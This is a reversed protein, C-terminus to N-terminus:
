PPPQEITGSGLERIVYSGDQQREARLEFFRAGVTTRADIDGSSANRGFVAANPFVYFDSAALSVTCREGPSVFMRVHCNGISRTQDAAVRLVVHHGDNVPRHLILESDSLGWPIFASAYRHSPTFASPAIQGDDDVALTGGSRPHRCGDGPALIMGAACDGLDRRVQQERAPVRLRMATIRFAGDARRDATFDHLALGDAYTVEIGTTHVRERGITDAFAALGNQHVQFSGPAGSHCEEGPYLVLGITCRGIEVLEGGSLAIMQVIWRGGSLRRLSVNHRAPNGSVTLGGGQIRWAGFVWGEQEDVWITEASTPDACSQGPALILGMRCEGLDTSAVPPAIAPPADLSVIRWGDAQRVADLRVRGSANPLDADVELQADALWSHQEPGITFQALGSPHAIFWASSGPVACYGGLSVLLGQVCDAGNIPRLLDLGLRNFIYRGHELREIRIGHTVSSAHPDHGLGHVFGVVIYIRSREAPFVM